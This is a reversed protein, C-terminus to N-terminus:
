PVWVRVISSVKGGTTFVSTNNRNWGDSSANIAQEVAEAGEIEVAEAQPDASSDSLTVDDALPLTLKGVEYYLPFGDFTETRYVYQIACLDIGGQEIGGNISVTGYEENREITEVTIESMTNDGNNHVKLVSGPQLSDIDDKMYGDYSDVSLTVQGDKIEIFDAAFTYNSDPALMDELPNEEIPEVVNASTSAVSSTPVSAATSSVATSDTTTTGCGALISVACIATIALIKESMRM